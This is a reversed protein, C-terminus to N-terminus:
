GGKNEPPSVNTLIRQVLGRIVKLADAPGLLALGLAFGMAPGPYTSTWRWLILSIAISALVSVGIFGLQRRASLETDAEWFLRAGAGAITIVLLMTLLAVPDGEGSLVASVAILVATIGSAERVVVAVADPIPPPAPPTPTM